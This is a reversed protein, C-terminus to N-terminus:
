DHVDPIWEGTDPEKWNEWLGALTFPQNGRSREAYESAMRTVALRGKIPQHLSGRMLSIASAFALPSASSPSLKM